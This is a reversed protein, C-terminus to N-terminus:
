ATSSGISNSRIRSKGSSCKSPVIDDVLETSEIVVV